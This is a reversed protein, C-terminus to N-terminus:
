APPRSHALLAEVAARGARRVPKGDVPDLPAARMDVEGFVLVEIETEEAVFRYGAVRRERGDGFRFGRELSGYRIGHDILRFGIEETSDNFVHLTIPTHETAAGSLVPGVLRPRFSEFFRMAELALRRLRELLAAHSAGNFLRQYDLLAAEIDAEGPLNRRAEIGLRRVAKARAVRASSVGEEAMIRAAALAVLERAHGNDRTKKKM